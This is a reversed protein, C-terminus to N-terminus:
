QAPDKAPQNLSDVRQKIKSLDHSYDCHDRTCLGNIFKGCIEDSKGPRAKPKYKYDQRPKYDPKSAHRPKHDPKSFLASPTTSLDKSSEAVHFLYARMLNEQLTSWEVKAAYINMYTAMLKRIHDPIALIFCRVLAANSTSESAETLLRLFRQTALDPHENEQFNFRIAKELAQAVGNLNRHKELFLNKLENWTLSSANDVTSYEQSNIDLYYLLTLRKHEDIKVDNTKIGHEVLKMFEHINDGVKLTTLGQIMPVRFPSPAPTPAAQIPAHQIPSPTTEPHKKMWVEIQYEIAKKQERLDAIKKHQIAPLTLIAQDIEEIQQNYNELSVTTNDINM